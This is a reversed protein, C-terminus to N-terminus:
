VGNNSFLLFGSAEKNASPQQLILDVSSDFNDRIIDVLYPQM